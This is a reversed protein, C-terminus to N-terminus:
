LSHISTRLSRGLLWHVWGSFFVEVKDFDNTNTAITFNEQDLVLFITQMKCHFNDFLFEDKLGTLILADFTPVGRCIPNMDDLM